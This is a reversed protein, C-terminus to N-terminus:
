RSQKEPLLEPEQNSPRTNEDDLASVVLGFQCYGGASPQFRTLDVRVGFARLKRNVHTELWSIVPIFTARLHGRRVLRLQANLGAVLRYWITPPLSQLYLSFFVFPAQTGGHLM